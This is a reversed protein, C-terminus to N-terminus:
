RTKKDVYKEVAKLAEKQSANKSIVGRKKLADILREDQILNNDIPSSAISSVGAPSAVQAFGGGL